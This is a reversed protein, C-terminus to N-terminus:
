KNLPVMKSVMRISEDDGYFHKRTHEVSCLGKCMRICARHALTTLASCNYTGAVLEDEGENSMGCEMKRSPSQM